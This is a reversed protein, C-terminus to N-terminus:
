VNTAHQCRHYTKTHYTGTIQQTGGRVGRQLNKYHCLIFICIVICKLEESPTTTTMHPFRKWSRSVARTIGVPACLTTTWRTHTHAHIYTHSSCGALSVPSGWLPVLERNHGVEEAMWGGLLRARQETTHHHGTRLLVASLCQEPSGWLPVFLQLGGHTHTHM